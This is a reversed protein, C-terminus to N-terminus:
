SIKNLLRTQVTAADMGSVTVLKDRGTNGAVIDIQAKKVELVDALFDILMENAKGEVPPATIRVKVTGDNLIESIENKSARPTIRVTIAAGLTGDHMHFKRQMNM